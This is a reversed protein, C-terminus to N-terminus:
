ISVNVGLGSGMAVLVVGPRSIAFLLSVNWLGVILLPYGALSVAVTKEVIPNRLLGLGHATLYVLLSAGAACPLFFGIKRLYFSRMSRACPMVEDVTLTKKVAILRRYFHRMAYHIWAVECIFAALAIDLGREYDSRFAAPLPSWSADVTWALLRDTFLFSY